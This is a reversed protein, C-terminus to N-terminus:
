CNQWALVVSAALGHNEISGLPDLGLRTCMSLVGEPNFAFVQFKAVSCFTAKAIHAMVLDEVGAAAFQQRLDPQLKALELAIEPDGMPALTKGITVPM